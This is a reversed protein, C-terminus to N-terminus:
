LREDLRDPHSNLWERYATALHELDTLYFVCIEYLEDPEIEHYFHVLRNRYGALVRLLKAEQQPLVGHEQLESAIEKYEGVGVGFGRALVHRGLDFLAELGRRLCSEATWVNRRDSFFAERDQLPLARIEGVMRDVWALRDSVLRKSITGPTM